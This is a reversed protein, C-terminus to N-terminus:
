VKWPRVKTLVEGVSVLRLKMVRVYDGIGGLMVSLGKEDDNLFMVKGLVLLFGGLGVGGMSCEWRECSRELGLESQTMRRLWWSWELFSSRVGGESEVMKWFM